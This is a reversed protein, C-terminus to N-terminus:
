DVLVSQPDRPLEKDYGFPGAVSVPTTQDMQQALARWIATGREAGFRGDLADLYMSRPTEDGGGVGLNAGLLSGVAIVDTVSWPKLGINKSRYYANIGAVYASTDALLQRGKAGADRIRAIQENQRQETADA